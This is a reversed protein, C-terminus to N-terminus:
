GAKYYELLPLNTGMTIARGDKQFIDKNRELWLSKTVDVAHLRKAHKLFEEMEQVNLSFCCSLDLQELQNATTWDHFFKGLLNPNGPIALTRLALPQSRLFEGLSEDTLDCRGLDLHELTSLLVALPRLHQETLITYNITLHRLNTCHAALNDVIHQKLTENMIYGGSFRFAEMTPGLSTFVNRLYEPFNDRGVVSRYDLEFYRIKRLHRQCIYLFRKNVSSLLLLENFCFYSFIEMLSDEDLDLLEM